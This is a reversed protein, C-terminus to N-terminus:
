RQPRPPSPLGLRGRTVLISIVTGVLAAGVLVVVLSLASNYVNSHDYYPESPSVTFFALPLTTLGAVAVLVVIGHRM